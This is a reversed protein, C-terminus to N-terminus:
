GRETDPGRHICSIRSEEIIGDYVAAENVVHQMMSCDIVRPYSNVSEFFSEAMKRDTFWFTHVRRKPNVHFSVSYIYQPEQLNHDNM